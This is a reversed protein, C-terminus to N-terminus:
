HWGNFYAGGKAYGQEASSYLFYPRTNARLDGKKGHFAETGDYWALVESNSQTDDEYPGFLGVPLMKVGLEQALQKAQVTSLGEYLSVKKNLLM